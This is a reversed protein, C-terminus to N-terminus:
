IAGGLVERSKEGWVTDPSKTGAWRWRYEGDMAQSIIGLRKRAEKIETRKYGLRQGKIFQMIDAVPLWEGTNETFYRTLVLEAGSINREDM